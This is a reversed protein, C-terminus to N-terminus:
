SAVTPDVGRRGAPAAERAPLHAECAVSKRAAAPCRRREVTALSSDVHGGAAGPRPDRTRSSVLLQHPHSMLRHTGLELLRVARRQNM